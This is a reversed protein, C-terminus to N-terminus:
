SDSVNWFVSLQVYSVWVSPSFLIEVSLRFTQKNSSGSLKSAVFVQSPNLQTM